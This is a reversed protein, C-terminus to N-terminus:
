YAVGILRGLVTSTALVGDAVCLPLHFNEFGTSIDGLGIFAIAFAGALIEPLLVNEERVSFGRADTM